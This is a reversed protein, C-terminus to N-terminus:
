STLLRCLLDKWTRGDARRHNKPKYHVAPVTSGNEELINGVANKAADMSVNFPPTAIGHALVRHNAPPRSKNSLVTIILLLVHPETIQIKRACCSATYLKSWTIHTWNSFFQSGVLKSLGVYKCIIFGRNTTGCPLQQLEKKKSKRAYTILYIQSEIAPYSPYRHHMWYYQM